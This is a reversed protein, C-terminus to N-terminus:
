AENTDQYEDLMIYLYQEQYNALLEEDEKFKNVVFLIMDEYDYFGHEKLRKQYEKYVLALEKNKSIDKQKKQWEVTPKGTRKNIKPESEIEEKFSMLHALLDEPAIDERKLIQISKLIDSLYFYKDNFTTLESLKLSSIISRTVNVKYADAGMIDLLRNKIAAVGSETFTTILISSPSIGAQKCIYAARMGIIETKGTGPGAIVMVPGETSTVAAQQQTNLKNFRKEFTDM